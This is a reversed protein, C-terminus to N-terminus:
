RDLAGMVRSAMETTGVTIAGEEAIDATRYGESLIQEVAAEIALAEGDLGLSHRLLLAASLIAGIPNAIDRGAIDPATGHIPEYLGQTGMGLSASPAMGLSGGLMAAEDTLIDGFMNSTVIVDFDRPRRILHMAMADVLRHELTVDAHEEGVRSAVERWLRSTELVNSKDVSTVKRRRGKALRFAVRMVREIEAVSYTVTDYAVTIGDEEYRGRKGYYVGSSLERVVLLDTGGVIDPKISSAHLLAGSLRTPRLNAFLDLEKRLSMLGQEPRVGPRASDWAPGGVAGFLVADADRCLGLTADPLPSGTEDIAKGGILAQEFSLDHGGLAAVAGLVEVACPVVEAGIGDGPLVAITAKM